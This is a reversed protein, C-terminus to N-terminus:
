VSFGSDLCWVNNTIVYGNCSGSPNAAIAAFPGNIEAIDSFKGIIVPNSQCGRFTIVQGNNISLIVEDTKTRSM